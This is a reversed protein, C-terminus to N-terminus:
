GRMRSAVLEGVLVASTAPGRLPATPLISTDAVRLRDIGRVRGVADVPGASGDPLRFPVTGCTHLATGLRDGIWGDLARDDRLVADELGIRLAGPIRAVVDAAIRVGERLRRRAAADGLYRFDIAASAGPDASRIALRGTAVPTHVSVLLPLAAGGAARGGALEAMPRLSQLVELDGDAPGDTSVATLGAGMWSGQPRPSAEAPVWELVVQPHDGFTAGVGPADLLVPVGAARLVAAPGIGSRQLIAPSALAGAALVVEDAEILAGDVEVGIARGAAIRVRDVAVGGRVVLNPRGAAPLLYAMATSWRVGHAANAPVPGVGPAGEDNKDPEAAHGAALAAAVFATAAPHDLSGRRVPIPGDGGHVPTAGLDLDREMARLLPLVAQWAWEPDAASWRDLDARRPRVFYAGNTATSGGLVRGRTVAWDRGPALRAPYWRSFPDDAAAGPVVGADLLRSPQGGFTLTAPGAELLLVQRAPDESLRAALVAGAAGGGVVVVDARSM